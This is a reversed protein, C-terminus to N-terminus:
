LNDELRQLAYNYKEENLESAIVRCQCANAAPFIPGAGAFPDWVVCGPYVSRRLLNEYVEAPKQAGFKPSSLSPIRILDTYVAVTPRDGRYAYLITEYVRRPGRNPDPLMGSSGKNWIIPTKWVTWGNTNFISKLDGFRSFDCFMYLHAKAKVATKCMEVFGLITDYFYEESDDYEHRATAMSGFNNASTGYPPDTVVVDVIAKPFRVERFDGLHFTHETRTMDFKKALDATLETELKRKIVAIASKKDPANVVDEDDLHEAILQSEKVFTSDGGKAERGLIETATAAMTQGPTQEKRLNHLEDVAQAHEQWSLNERLINEELEAERVALPDLDSIKVYPSHGYFILEGNHYVSQGAEHLLSLARLRREGAVLTIGDDRLVVAHLLGKSEISGALDQLSDKDLFRRQRNGLVVELINITQM